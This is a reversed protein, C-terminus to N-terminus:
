PLLRRKQELRLVTGRADFRQWTLLTTLSFTARGGCTHGSHVHVHLPVRAVHVVHVTDDHDGQIDVHRHAGAHGGVVDTRTDHVGTDAVPGRPLVVDAGPGVPTVALPGPPADDVRQLAVHPGPM